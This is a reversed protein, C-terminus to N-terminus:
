NIFIRRIMSQSWLYSWFNKNTNKKILLKLLKHECFMFLLIKTVLVTIEKYKMHNWVYRWDRVMLSSSILTLLRSESCHICWRKSGCSSLSRTLRYSWYLHNAVRPTSSSFKTWLRGFSRWLSMLRWRQRARTLLTHQWVSWINQFM